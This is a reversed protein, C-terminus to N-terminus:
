VLWPSVMLEATGKWTNTAGSATRENMLIERAAGELAVPVVLLNPVLGLPRGHSGTRAMISARAAAYSTADLTQRSGYALQWLGYGTAWRADTGYLFQKKMFVNPDDIKDLAVFQPARREQHILPKLPRNTCLLFWPTGSGGGTNSATGTSGDALIVPHDTDFFNQGDFCTATFGDKLAAFTMEDPKSGVSSAMFEVMPTYVGLNDDEIDDRNVGVTLEFPKNTLTYDHESLGHVVRDGLWERMGPMNGLWGYKNSATTSRVVTAIRRYDSPAQSLVGQFATSFGVRIADLNASNIIM